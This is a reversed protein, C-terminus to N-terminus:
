KVKIENIIQEKLKELEIEQLDKLTFAEVLIEDVNTQFYLLFWGAENIEKELYEMRSFEISYGNPIKIMLIPKPEAVRKFDFGDRKLNAKSEVKFRQLKVFEYFDKDYGPANM